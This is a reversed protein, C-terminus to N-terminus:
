IRRTRRFRQGLTRALGYLSILLWAGEVLAASLNFDFALSFLIGGAGLANLVQYSIDDRGLRGEQHLFYALLISTVGAMGIGDIWSM